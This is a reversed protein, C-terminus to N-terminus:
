KLRRLGPQSGGDCVSPLYYSLSPHRCIVRLAWSKPVTHIVFVSSSDAPHYDIWDGAKADLEPIDVPTRFAFPRPM